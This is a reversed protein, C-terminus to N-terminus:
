AAQQELLGDWPMKASKTNPKTKKADYSSYQSIRMRTALSQIINSQAIEERMLKRYEKMDFDDSRELEDALQALRRARCVHRVYQCLLAFTERPFWDAPCRGIVARWEEAQEDTLESPPNPRQITELGSFRALASAGEASKPGRQRM